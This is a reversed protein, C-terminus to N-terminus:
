KAAKSLPSIEDESMFNTGPLPDDIEELSVGIESKVLEYGDPRFRVFFNMEVGGSAWREIYDIVYEELLYRMDHASFEEAQEWVTAREHPTNTRDMAIWMARPYEDFLERIHSWTHVKDLVVKSIVKRAVRELLRWRESQPYSTNVKKVWAIRAREAVKRAEPADHKNIELVSM